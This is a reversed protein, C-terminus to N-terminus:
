SHQELRRVVCRPKVRHQSHSLDLLRTCGDTSAVLIDDVPESTEFRAYSAVSDPGIPAAAREALINACVWAAVRNQYNVGGQTPPVVAPGAHNTGNWVGKSEAYLVLVSRVLSCYRLVIPSVRSGM